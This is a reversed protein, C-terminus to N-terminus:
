KQFGSLQFQFSIEIIMKIQSKPIRSKPYRLDPSGTIPHDTLGSAIIAKIMKREALAPWRGVVL